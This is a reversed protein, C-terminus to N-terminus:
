NSEQWPPHVHSPVAGPRDVEPGGRSLGTVTGAEWDEAWKGQPTCQLPHPLLRSQAPLCHSPLRTGGSCGKEGDAEPSRSGLLKGLRPLM